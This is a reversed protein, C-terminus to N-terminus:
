SCRKHFFRRTGHAIFSFIALQNSYANKVRKERERERQGMWGESRLILASNNRYIVSGTTTQLYVPRRHLAYCILVQELVCLIIALVCMCVDWWFECYHHIFSQILNIIIKTMCSLNRHSAFDALLKQGLLLIMQQVTGISHQVCTFNM